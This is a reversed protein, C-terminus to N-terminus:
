RVVYKAMHNRLKLDAKAFHDLFWFQLVEDAKSKVYRFTFPGEPAEVQDILEDLLELLRQHQARHENVHPYEISAQVREERAFHRVSHRRLEHLLGAVQDREEEAGPTEVFRRILQHQERHDADLGGHDINMEERWDLVM